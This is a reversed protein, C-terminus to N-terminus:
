RVQAQLQALEAALRADEAALRERVLRLRDIESQLDHLRVELRRREDRNREIELKLQAIRVRLAAQDYPNPAQQAAAAGALAAMILVIRKM